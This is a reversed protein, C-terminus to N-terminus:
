RCNNEKFAPTNELEEIERDSQQLKNIEKLEEHTRKIINVREGAKKVDVPKKVRSINRFVSNDVASM